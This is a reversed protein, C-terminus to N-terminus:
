RGRGLEFIHIRLAPFIELQGGGGSLRLFSRYFARFLLELLKAGRERSPYFDFVQFLDQRYYQPGVFLVTQDILQGLLGAFSILVFNLHVGDPLGLGQM